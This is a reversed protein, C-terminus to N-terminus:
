ALVSFSLASLDADWPRVGARAVYLPCVPM